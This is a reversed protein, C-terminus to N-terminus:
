QYINPTVVNLSQYDAGDQSEKTRSASSDQKAYPSAYATDGYIERYLVEDSDITNSGLDSLTSYESNFSSPPLQQYTNSSNDFNGLNNIGRTPDAENYTANNISLPSPQRQQNINPSNNTSNVILSHQSGTRSM